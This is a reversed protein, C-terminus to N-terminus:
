PKIRLQELTDPFLLKLAELSTARSVAVYNIANDPAPGAAVRLDVLVNDLTEGQAKHVSSVTGSTLPLQLRRIRFTRAAKSPTRVVVTIIRKEPAIPVVGLPLGTLQLGQRAAEPIHVLVYAPPRALKISAQSIRAFAPENHHLVINTITGVSNNCVAVGTFQTKLLLTVKMGVALSTTCPLNDTKNDELQNCYARLSAPWTGPALASWSDSFLKDRAHCIFHRVKKRECTALALPVSLRYRIKNRLVIFTSDPCHNSNVSGSGVVRKNIVDADEQTCEGLRLREVIDKLPGTFRNSQHLMVWATMGLFLQQGGFATKNTSALATVGNAKSFEEALSHGGVPKLQSFDGPAIVDLGGFPIGVDGGESAVAANHLAAFMTASVMSVEEIALVTVGTWLAKKIEALVSSSTRSRENPIDAVSHCTTGGVGAAQKGQFACALLRERPQNIHLCPCEILANIARLVHSKGTGAGGGIYLRIPESPEGRQRRLY